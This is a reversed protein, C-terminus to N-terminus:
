NKNLKHHFYITINNNCYRQVLSINANGINQDRCYQRSIKINYVHLMINNM